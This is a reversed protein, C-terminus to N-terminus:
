TQELFAFPPSNERYGIRLSGTDNIKKLTGSYPYAFPVNRQQAVSPQALCLALAAATAACAKACKTIM